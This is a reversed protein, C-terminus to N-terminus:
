VIISMEMLPQMTRGLCEQGEKNFYDAYKELNELPPTRENNEYMGIISRGIGLKIALEEQTLGEHARLSKLINGLKGM